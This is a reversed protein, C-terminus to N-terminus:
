WTENNKKWESWYLAQTIAWRCVIEISNIVFINDTKRSNLQVYFHLRVKFSYENSPCYVLFFYTFCVFHNSDYVCIYITRKFNLCHLSCLWPRHLNNRTRWSQWFRKMKIHLCFILSFFVRQFRSSIINKREKEWIGVTYMSGTFMNEYKAM